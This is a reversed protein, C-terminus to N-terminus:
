LRSRDELFRDDVNIKNLGEPPPKWRPLIRNMSTDSGPPQCFTVLEDHLTRTKRVVEQIQWSHEEFISNNRWCWAQWLGALFLLSRTGCAMQKVWGTADTLSFFNM